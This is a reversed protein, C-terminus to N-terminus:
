KKPADAPPSFDAASIKLDKNRDLAEFRDEQEDETLNKVEPGLRFEEFSLAGDGNTDLKHNIQGPKAEEEPPGDPRKPRQKNGEPRKFSPMPRDKPTILGDGDTDLRAFVERQKEPSLKQFLPGRKFEEFSIGGSKDTDLEWLRGHKWPGPHNKRLQLIEERSLKGDANKDLRKFLGEQKEAPLNKVREMEKFEALSLFGDKDTDALNWTKLFQEQGEHHGRGEQNMPHPERNPKQPQAICVAPLLAGALLSSVPITKM